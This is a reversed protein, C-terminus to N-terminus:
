NDVSDPLEFEAWPRFVLHESTGFTGPFKRAGVIALEEVAPFVVSGPAVLVLLCGTIVAVSFVSESTLSIKPREGAESQRQEPRM